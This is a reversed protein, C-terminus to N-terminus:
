RGLFRALRTRINPTQATQRPPESYDHYRPPHPRRPPAHGNNSQHLPKVICRRRVPRPSEIGWLYELDCLKSFRLRWSSESLKSLVERGLFRFRVSRFARGATVGAIM